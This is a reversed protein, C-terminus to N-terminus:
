GSTMERKVAQLSCEASRANAGRAITSASAPGGCEKCTNRQRQHPCIGSGGCVKCTSREPQHQCIGAGGCEKCENRGGEQMQEQHQCIGAGGCEKFESRERQHQCSAGGCEKCKNRQRQHPFISAGGCEKCQSRQRQHPCLGAGGCAKCTSRKRQHPCIGAGRVEQIQEKPAPALLCQVAEEARRCVTSVNSLPLPRASARQRGRVDRSLQFSCGPCDKSSSHPGVAATSCVCSRWSGFCHLACESKRSMM